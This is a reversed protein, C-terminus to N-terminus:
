SEAPVPALIGRDDVIRLFREADSLDDFVFDAGTEVLSEAGYSGTAVAVARAGGARACAVDLPTDGVVIVDRAGDLVVGCARAEALAVPVLTNRDHTEDGYAGCKFYRWLDFHELKIRAAEALNGTLLGLLVDERAALEDLIRRVGPMARKGPFPREIEERLHRCYLQRFARILDADAVLSARAFADALIVADTRGPMTIGTFAEDVRFMDSFARGMARTGAGGTLILTGDIDFLVLRPM